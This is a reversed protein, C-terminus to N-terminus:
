RMAPEKVSPIELITVISDFALLAIELKVEWEFREELGELTKNKSDVRGFPPYCLTFLIGARKSTDNFMYSGM